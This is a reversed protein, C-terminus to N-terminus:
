RLYLRPRPTGIAECLCQSGQIVIIAEDVPEIAFAILHARPIAEEDFDRGTM